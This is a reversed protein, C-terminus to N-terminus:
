SVAALVAAVEAAAAGAGAGSAISADALQGEAGVWDGAVFVGPQGPVATSSRGSLGGASALPLGHSVVMRHLYRRLVVDEPAVGALAAHAELEARVAAPELAEGPAHYRLATALVLGDPALAAPPSHVSFYLPRDAGLLIRSAPLRRLGLDLVSATVPPAVDYWPSRGLLRAAGEPGGAALVVARGVVPGSPTDVAWGEDVARVATAPSGARVEVGTAEALARLPDVLSQWGGHLYRVGDTARRLQDVAAGASLLQPANAYSTLRVLVLFLRRVEPSVDRSDLWDDVSVSALAAADLKPLQSMVRAWEAKAPGPLLRSRLV